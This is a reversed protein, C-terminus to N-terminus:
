VRGMSRFHPISHKNIESTVKIRTLFVQFGQGGERQSDYCLEKTCDMEIM